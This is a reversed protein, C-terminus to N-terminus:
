LSFASEFAEEYGPPLNKATALFMITQGSSPNQWIPLDYEKDFSISLLPSTVPSASCSSSRSSTYGSSEDGSFSEDILSMVSATDNADFSMEHLDEDENVIVHMADNDEAELSVSRPLAITRVAVAAANPKPMSVNASPVKPVFEAAKVNFPTSTISMRKSAQEVGRQKLEEVSMVSKDQPSRSSARRQTQNQRLQKNQAM